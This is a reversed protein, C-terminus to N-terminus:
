RRLLILHYRQRRHFHSESHLHNQDASRLEDMQLSQKIARLDLEIHWRDHYLDLVESSTYYEADTLTTVVVLEKVRSLFPTLFRLSM